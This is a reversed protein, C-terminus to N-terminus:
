QDVGAREGGPEELSLWPEWGWMRLARATVEPRLGDIRFEGDHEVPFLKVHLRAVATAMLSVPVVVAVHRGAAPRSILGIPVGRIADVIAAVKAEDETLQEGVVCVLAVDPVVKVQAIPDLAAAAATVPEGARVAACVRGQSCTVVHPEVGLQEFVAFVHALFTSNRAAGRPGAQILVLGPLSAIAAAPRDIPTSRTIWTGGGDPRRSNLIRVPIDREVAPRITAPHLVKAGFQALETAEDFSLHPVLRASPLVRPDATLMGDVDTWIQIEEAGLCAGMISATWDSGGRGLTTTVGAATAGIFGGVVPARGRAFEPQIVERLLRSTAAYDPEACGPQGDTVLVARSDVWAAAVGADELAEAVICSSLLEGHAMIADLLAPSAGRVLGAGRVLTRLDVLRRRVAAACRARRGADRMGAALQLHRRALSAVAAEAAQQRGEAAMQAIAILTDTVTALASVVVLRPRSEGSVIRVLRALGDGDAVSTGGFKLVVM